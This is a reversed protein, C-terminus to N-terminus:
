QLDCEKMNDRQRKTLITIYWAISTSYDPEEVVFGMRKYFNKTDESITLGEHNHLHLIDDYVKAIDHAIYTSPIHYKRLNGEWIDEIAEKVRLMKKTQTKNLQIDM